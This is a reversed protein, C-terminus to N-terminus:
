PLILSAAFTLDKSVPEFQKFSKAPFYQGAQTKELHFIFFPLERCKETCFQVEQIVKAASIWDSYM